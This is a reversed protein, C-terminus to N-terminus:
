RARPRPILVPVAAKYAQYAPDDGWRKDARAELLPVGSVKMLLTAVFLPSLLGIWQGGTFVGAGVVAIEPSPNSEPM